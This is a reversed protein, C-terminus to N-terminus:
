AAHLLPQAKRVREDVVRAHQQEVLRRGAEVRAGADLQALQEPLQPREPLVIRTEDWM